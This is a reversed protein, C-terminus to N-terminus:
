EQREQYIGADIFKNDTMIVLGLNLFWFCCHFFYWWEGIAFVEVGRLHM